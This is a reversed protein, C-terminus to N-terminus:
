TQDKHFVELLMEMNNLNKIGYKIARRYNTKFNPKWRVCTEMM